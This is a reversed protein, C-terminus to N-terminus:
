CNNELCQFLHNKKGTRKNMFRILYFNKSSPEMSNIGYDRPDVEDGRMVEIETGEPLKYDIRIMEKLASVRSDYSPEIDKESSFLSEKAVDEEPQLDIESSQSVM